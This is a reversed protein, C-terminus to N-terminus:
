LRLFFGFEKFSVDNKVKGKRWGTIILGKIVNGNLRLCLIGGGGGFIFFAEWNLYLFRRGVDKVIEEEFYVNWKREEELSWFFNLKVTFVM